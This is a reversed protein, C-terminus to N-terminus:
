SPSFAEEIGLEDILVLSDSTSNRLIRAADLMESMFTSVGHYQNDGAGM